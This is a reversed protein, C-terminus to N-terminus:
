FYSSIHFSCVCRIFLRHFAIDVTICLTAPLCHVLRRVLQMDCKDCRTAM